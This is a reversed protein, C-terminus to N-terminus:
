KPILPFSDILVLFELNKGSSFSIDSILVFKSAGYAYDQFVEKIDSDLEQYFYDANDESFDSELEVLIDSMSNLLSLLEERNYTM